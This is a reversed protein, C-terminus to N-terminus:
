RLVKLTMLLRELTTQSFGDPIDIQVGQGLNLKLNSLDIPMNGPKIQVFEVPLNQKIFKTKWYTFRHPILDNHRCYELQSMGSESWQDIHSQWYERRAENKEKWSTTM